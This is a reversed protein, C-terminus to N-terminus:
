ELYIRMDEPTASPPPLDKMTVLGAQANIVKPISNVIMSVTGIDGHVGGIIKEHVDPEGKITVSDYPEKVNAHSIFELTIVREGEKVGHAISKLGCVQGPKVTIFPTQKTLDTWTEVEVDSIVPEPPLVEIEDLEWGLAAAIMSISEELGVHGTIKGEDIMKKFEEPTMGTGIKKQYSSRRNGSYMMRTVKISEVEKCIGTITIPLTDMLYGPNIGTGLVTVRHKKALEDIENALEPHKYYPYALEECTSVVNMGAKVCKAIQPYVAKLHSMTAHIVIDAKVRSFLDDPDDTVTVGVQRGIGLVEGLDKGVKEKAIDVAGVIELGKKQLAFRAIRSGIAGIGFLIVKVKNTM